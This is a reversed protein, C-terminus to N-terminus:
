EEIDKNEKEKEREKIARKTNENFGGCPIEVIENYIITGIILLIFGCLQIWSWKEEVEKPVPATLFFIWILITRLTNIITRSTASAYKTVSVGGFNFTAISFIYLITLGIIKGSHGMQKFALITDEFRFEMLSRDPNDKTTPQCMKQFDKNWSDCKIFYFPILLVIYIVAGWFGEMGVIMLPEANRGRIFKEEVIYMSAAFLQSTLMLIIGILISTSFGEKEGQKMLANVGVVALGCVVILIGLLHHRFYKAKLFIMSALGTFIIVAGRLMENVSSPLFTLALSMITSAMLDCAAPIAFYWIKMEKKPQENQVPVEEKKTEEEERSVEASESTLPAQDPLDSNVENKKKIAKQVQYALLCLMEGLFMTFIIFKQHVYKIDMSYSNQLLKNASTNISGTILMLGWYILIQKFPIEPTNM